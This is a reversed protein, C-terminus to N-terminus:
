GGKESETIGVKCYSAKVSNRCGPQSNKIKKNEGGNKAPDEM